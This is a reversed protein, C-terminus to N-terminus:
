PKPLPGKGALYKVEDDSLARDFVCVEDVAAVPLHAHPFRKPGGFPPDTEEFAGGFSVASLVHKPGPPLQLSHVLKGDVYMRAGARERTGTRVLAVHHWAAGDTVPVSFAGDAGIGAPKEIWGPDPSKPYHLRFNAGKRDTDLSSLPRLQHGYTSFTYARAGTQVRAWGAVTSPGDLASAPLEAPNSRLITMPALYAARGRPGPGTRMHEPRPVSGKPWVPVVKEEIEDFSIYLALGKLSQPNPVSL